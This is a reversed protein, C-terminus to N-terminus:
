GPLDAATITHPGAQIEIVRTAAHPGALTGPRGAAVAQRAPGPRHHQCKIGAAFLSRNPPADPM